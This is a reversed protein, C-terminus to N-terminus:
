PYDVASTRFTLNFSILLSFPLGNEQRQRLLDIVADAM